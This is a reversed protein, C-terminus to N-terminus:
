GLKMKKLAKQISDQSYGSGSLSKTVQEINDKNQLAVDIISIIEDVEPYGLTQEQLNIPNEAPKETVQVKPKESRQEVKPKEAPKQKQDFKQLPNQDIKKAQNKKSTKKMEEPKKMDVIAEEPKIEAPKAEVAEIKYEPKVQAELESEKSKTQFGTRELAELEKNFAEQQKFLLMERRNLADEKKELDKLQNEINILMAKIEAQNTTVQDKKQSLEAERKNLEIERKNLAERITKAKKAYENLEEINKIATEETQEQVPATKEAIHMQDRITMINQSRMNFEKIASDIKLKEIKLQSQSENIQAKLQEIEGRDTIQRASYDSIISKVSTENDKKIESIIKEYQLKLKEAHMKEIGLDKEVGTLMEKLKLTELYYKKATAEKLKMIQKSHEIQRQLEGQKETEKGKKLLKIESDKEAIQQLLQEEMRQSLEEREAIFAKLRTFENNKEKLRDNLQLQIDDYAKEKERFYKTLNSLEIQKENLKQKLFQSEQNSLEIESSIEKEIKTLNEKQAIAQEQESMLRKITGEKEALQNTFEKNMARELSDRLLIHERLKENTAQLEKIKSNLLDQEQGEDHKGFIQRIIEDRQTLQAKFEQSIENDLKEKVQIHDRLQNNLAELENIRKNLLPISNYARKLLNNKDSLQVEYEGTIQSDISDKKQIHDRFQENLDQVGKLRRNLLTLDM